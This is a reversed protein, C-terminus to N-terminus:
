KSDRINLVIGKKEIVVKSSEIHSPFFECGVRRSAILERGSSKTSLTIEKGQARVEVSRDFEVVASSGDGLICLSNAIGEIRDANANLAYYDLKLIAAEMFVLVAPIIIALFAFFTAVVILFELSVQGVNLPM